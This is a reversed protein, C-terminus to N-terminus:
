TLLKRGRRGGERETEQISKEVQGLTTSGGGRREEKERRKGVWGARKGEEKGFRLFGWACQVQERRRRSKRRERGERGKEGEDDKAEEEGRM